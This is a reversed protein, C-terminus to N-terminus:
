GTATASYKWQSSLLAQLKSAKRGVVEMTAMVGQDNQQVPADTSFMLEGTSTSAASIGSVGTQMLYLRSRLKNAPLKQHHPFVPSDAKGPAPFDGTPVEAHVPSLSPQVIPNSEEGKLSVSLDLDASGRSRAYALEAASPSTFTSVMNGNVSKTESLALHPSTKRQPTFPSTHASQLPTSPSPVATPTSPESRAAAHAHGHAHTSKPSSSHLSGALSNVTTDRWRATRAVTAAFTNKAARFEPSSGATTTIEVSHHAGEGPPAAASRVAVSPCVRQMMESYVANCDEHTSPLRQLHRYFPHCHLSRVEAIPKCYTFSRTNSSGVSIADHDHVDNRVNSHQSDVNEVSEPSIAAYYKKQIYSRSSDRTATPTSGTNSIHTHATTFVVNNRGQVLAIATGSPRFPKKKVSVSKVPTKYVLKARTSATHAELQETVETSGAKSREDSRLFKNAVCWKRLKAFSRILTTHNYHCFAKMYQFCRTLTRKTIFHVLKREATLVKSHQGLSTLSRIQAQLTDDVSAAAHAKHIDQERTTPMIVPTTSSPTISDQELPITSGVLCHTVGGEM